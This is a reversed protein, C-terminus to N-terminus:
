LLVHVASGNWRCQWQSVRQSGIWNSTVQLSAACRKGHYSALYPAWRASPTVLQPAAQTRSRGPPQRQCCCKRLRRRGARGEAPVACCVPWLSYIVGGRRTCGNVGRGWCPKVTWPTKTVTGRAVGNGAAAASGQESEGRRARSRSAIPVCLRAHVMVKGCHRLWYKQLSSRLLRRNLQAPPRRLELSCALLMIPQFCSHAM